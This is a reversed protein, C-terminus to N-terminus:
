QSNILQNFPLALCLRAIEWKGMPWGGLMQSHGWPEWQSLGGTSAAQDQARLLGGAEDVWPGWAQWPWRHNLAAMPLAEDETSAIRDFYIEM